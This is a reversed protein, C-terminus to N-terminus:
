NRYAKWGIPQGNPLRVLLQPYECIAPDRWDKGRELHLRTTHATRVVIPVYVTGMNESQARVIYHGSPLTVQSPLEDVPTIANSVEMFLRGDPTYISYDTHPYAYTNDGNPNQVTASYVKLFGISEGARAPRPGAVDRVFVPQPCATLTGTSVALSVAAFAAAIALKRSRNIRKMIAGGGIKTDM